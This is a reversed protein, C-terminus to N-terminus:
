QQQVSFPFRYTSQQVYSSRGVKGSSEWVLVFVSFVYFSGFDASGHLLGEECGGHFDDGKDVGVFVVDGGDGSLATVRERVLDVELGLLGAPRRAYADVLAFVFSSWAVKKLHWVRFISKKVCREKSKLM